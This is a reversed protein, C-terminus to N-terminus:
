HNDSDLMTEGITRFRVGRGLGLAIRDDHQEARALESPQLLVFNDKKWELSPGPPSPQM